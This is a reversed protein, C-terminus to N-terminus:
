DPKPFLGIVPEDRDAFRRAPQAQRRPEPQPLAVQNVWRSFFGHEAEVLDRGAAFGAPRWGNRELTWRRLGNAELAFWFAFLLALPTALSDAMGFRAPVFAIAAAVVLWGLLVLWLRHWLLWLVPVFLAPWCFGEKVFAMREAARVPDSEQRPAAHVTFVKM